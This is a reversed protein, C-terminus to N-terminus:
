SGTAALASMKYDGDFMIAMGKDERRIVKGNVNVKIAGSAGIIQQIAAPTLLMELQVPVGEPLPHPTIVFTGGSSIDKTVLTLTTKEGHAMEAEITTRAQLNFRQLKRREEM